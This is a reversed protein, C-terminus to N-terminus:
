GCDSKQRNRGCRGAERHLFGPIGPQRERVTAGTKEMDPVGQRSGRQSQRYVSVHFGGIQRAREGEIARAIAKFSNINKMETRTGLEKSGVPKVSLNVDARLSGQEMKCDSVGTYQLIAKLKTLYAIVEEGNSFDPESVIELLPVGCRNYDVLTCDEWPDHILKGADEEMHIEKIRISIAM